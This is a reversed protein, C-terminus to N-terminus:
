IFELTVEPELSGQCKYKIGMIPALSSSGKSLTRLGTDSVSNQETRYVTVELQQRCLLIGCRLSHTVCAFM